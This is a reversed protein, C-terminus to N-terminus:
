TKFRQEQNEDQRFDDAVGMQAYLKEDLEDWLSKVKDSIGVESTILSAAVSCATEVAIRTVKLPDLVTDPIKLSGGASRQIRNYPEMLANFMPHDKGLEEAIEKLALGGGKITGEELACQAAHVADEIKKKAAQREPESSAGVRIIAFGSQLAGLRRKTQEKFAADKENEIEIKLSEVREKVALKSGAGDLVNVEDEDVVIKKASGLHSLEVDNLQQKANKDIFKAGCYVAVDRWQDTTLSPSKIVLFDILNTNGQRAQIVTQALLEILPREAKNCIIVLKRKGKQLLEYIFSSKPDGYTRQFAALSELDHNTVLIQVDEFVAERRKNNAMYASVYTGLFRMGKILETEVGYKTHWNDEVSVYGDSGVQEVANTIEEVFEPFLVGLSSSVVNKLDKKALSKTQERLREVVLKGTDLIEKAMRNVDATGTNGESIFGSETDNKDEEEIRQAYDKVIKAALVATTTTGDGAREDTKMSGEILTQAGLDEIPDDLMIHRAITSGDNHIHPPSYKTKIIASRGRPGLSMGVLDGVLAAGKLLKRRGEQGHKIIVKLM